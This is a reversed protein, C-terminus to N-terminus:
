AERSAIGRYLEGVMRPTDPMLYRDLKEIRFGCQSVLDGIARNMNCGCGILKQVPNFFDQRKAVRPDTSRGHELFLFHGDARLVRRMEQLASRVDDISCLTFTTVVSDFSADEFPLRGSADLRIEEVPVRAESVRRAVRDALMQNSDIVTLKTVASPYHPLNLGTGFGIELVHGRAPDLAVRRERSIMRTGLVRDMVRPFIHRSYFGM